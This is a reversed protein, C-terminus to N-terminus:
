LKYDTYTENREWSIDSTSISVYANITNFENEIEEILSELKTVASIGSDSTWVEAINKICNRISSVAMNWTVTHGWTTDDYNSYLSIIENKKAILTEESVIDM